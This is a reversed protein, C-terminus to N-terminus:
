QRMKGAGYGGSGYGVFGKSYDCGTRGTVCSALLLCLICLYFLTRKM